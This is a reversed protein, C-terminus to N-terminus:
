LISSARRIAGIAVGFNFSGPRDTCGGNSHIGVIEGSTSIVPSGSSGGRTDISDYRIQGGTNSLLPGAEIMKPNGNPHQIVCLTAGPTSSDQQAVPLYGYKRGPIEGNTNRGLEAIAYDLGGRQIELLRIIPFGDAERVFGTAANIQYNFNVQMLTATEYANIVQWNRRPPQWDNVQSLDFSHGTTLFLTESTLVGSAWRVGNVDGPSSGHETFRQPLDDLWQIQGVPPSCRNVFDISVGLTGDYLEVNQSDDANGCIDFALAAAQQEVEGIQKRLEIRQQMLEERRQELNALYSEVEESTLPQSQSITERRSPMPLSYRRFKM